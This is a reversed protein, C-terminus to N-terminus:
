CDDEDTAVESELDRVAAEEPESALSVAGLAALNAAHAYGVPTDWDWKRTM